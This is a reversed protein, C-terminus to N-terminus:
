HCYNSFTVSLTQLLPTDLPAEKVIRQARSEFEVLANFRLGSIHSVIPLSIKQLRPLGALAIALEFASPSHPPPVFFSTSGDGVRLLGESFRFSYSYSCPITSIQSTSFTACVRYERSPKWSRSSASSGRGNCIFTPGVIAYSM